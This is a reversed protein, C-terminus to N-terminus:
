AGKKLPIIRISPLTFLSQIDFTTSLLHSPLSNFRFLPLSPFKSTYQTVHNVNISEHVLGLRSSNRVTKLCEMIEDDDDSTMAQVLLSMPWANQLGISFTM